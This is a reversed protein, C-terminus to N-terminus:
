KQYGTRAILTEALVRARRLHEPNTPGLRDEAAIMLLGGDPTSETKVDPSSVVGDCLSPGLYAIWPIHYLSYPFLAAGPYLPAKDYDLRFAQVCAWPQQWIANIALLAARFLPYKVIAPDPAVLVDGANLWVTMRNAWVTMRRSRAKITTHAVADYGSEPEPHGDDDRGVNHGIIEAIRSRAAGLPYGKMASLDGVEWDPFINPDIQTLADLMALFKSCLQDLSVPRAPFPLRVSYKFASTSM